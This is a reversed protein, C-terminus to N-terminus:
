ARLSEAYIAAIMARDPQLPDLDVRGSVASTLAEVDTETLGLDVLGVRMGLRELYRAVADQM